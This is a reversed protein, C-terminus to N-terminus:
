TFGILVSPVKRGGLPCEKHHIRKDSEGTYCGAAGRDPEASRHRKKVTKVQGRARSGM